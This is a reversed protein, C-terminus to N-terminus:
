VCGLPDEPDLRAVDLSAFVRRFVQYLKDQAAADGTGPLGALPDPVAPDQLRALYTDAFTTAESLWGLEITADNEVEVTGEYTDGSGGM